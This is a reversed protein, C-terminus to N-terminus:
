FDSLKDKNITFIKEYANKLENNDILIKKTTM